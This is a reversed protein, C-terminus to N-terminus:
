LDSAGDARAIFTAVDTWLAEFQPRRFTSGTAVWDVHPPQHEPDHFHGCVDLHDAHAAHIVEGWPQSLVPVMGDNDEPGPVADWALRMAAAHATSCSLERGTRSTMWWLPRYLAHTAQRWPDTGIEIASRVSPRRGCTLVSGYRVGPRDATSANFLDIGEPTLQRLLSQDSRVHELFATIEAEREADFDALLDHYVQDLVNHRGGTRGDLQVLVGVLRFLVRLPLRGFRLTYISALSLAWLAKQGTLSGFFGALPTGRHPTAVTVVSRVRAAVPEAEASGALAVNPTVLLRADLGGTSHGILHLPVDPDKSHTEIAQLLREARHRISATPLTPVAIVRAEIGVDALITRLFERVHHFYPIGGLDAFGFFGPVLFIDHRGAM